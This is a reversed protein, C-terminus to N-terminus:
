KHDQYHRAMNRWCRIVENWGVYTNIRKGVSLRLYFFPLSDHNCGLSSAMSIVKNVPVGVGFVKSKDLNVKLGFALEFCRLIHILCLANDRSWEGFFLADDAYQLLSLNAGNNALYIGKYLGNDCAELISVQLAEAIDFAKEFDMKFLLLKTDEVSAMRILENAVLIGDLIWCWAERQFIGFIEKDHFSSELACPMFHDLSTSSCSSTQM